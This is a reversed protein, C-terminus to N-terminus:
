EACYVLSALGTTTSPAGAIHTQMTAVSACPPPAFLIAAKAVNSQGKIIAKNECASLRQLDAPFLSGANAFAITAAKRYCRGVQMGAKLAPANMRLEALVEATSDPIDFQTLPDPSAADGDCYATDRVYRRVFEAGDLVNRVGAEDLCAPTGTAVLNAVAEMYVKNHVKATCNAWKDRATQISGASGSAYARSLALLASQDCKDNGTIYKNSLKTVARQRSLVDTDPSVFGGNVFPPNPLPTAAALSASAVVAALAALGLRIM